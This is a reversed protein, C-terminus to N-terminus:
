WNVILANLGRLLGSIKTINSAIATRSNVFILMAKEAILTNSIMAKQKQINM